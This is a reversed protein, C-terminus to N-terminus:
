PRPAVTQSEIRAADTFLVFVLTLEALTHIISNEFEVDAIGLVAGSIVLGFAAFIMPPTIITNSLKGSVMAFAVLGAAIVLFSESDM